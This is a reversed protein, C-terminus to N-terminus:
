RGTASVCPTPISTRATLRGPAVRDGIWAHPPPGRRRAGAAIRAASRRGPSRATPRRSSASAARRVHRQRAAAVGVAGLSSSGGPPPPLRARRGLRGLDLSCEFAGLAARRGAVEVRRIEHNNQREGFEGLVYARTASAAAATSRHRLRGRPVTRFVRVERNAKITKARKLTCGPARVSKARPQQALAAQPRARSPSCPPRRWRRCGGGPSTRPAAFAPHPILPSRNNMKVSGSLFAPLGRRTAANRPQM